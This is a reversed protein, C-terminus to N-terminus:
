GTHEDSARRAALHQWYDPTRDVALDRRGHDSDYLEAYQGIAGVFEAGTPAPVLTYRGSPEVITKHGATEAWGIHSPCLVYGLRQYYRPEIDCFLVSLRAGRDREYPEIWRILRQAFGQGRFDQLTHVSAIGIGPVPRGHLRFVIPHSALAAVVRRELCGVIWRHRQHLASNERRKVHDTLSLGLSWVDHCNEHAAVREADSALHIDLFQTM